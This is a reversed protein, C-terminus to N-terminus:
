CCLQYTLKEYLAVHRKDISMFSMLKDLFGHRSQYSVPDFWLRRHHVVTGLGGTDNSWDTKPNSLKLFLRCAHKEVLRINVEMMVIFLQDAFKEEM